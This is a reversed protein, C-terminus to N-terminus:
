AATDGLQYFQVITRTLERELDITEKFRIQQIGGLNFGVDKEMAKKGRDRVILVFNDQGLGRGRNLGMLFGVEHYVNKNGGTLDAILLGSSELMDLIEDTIAYSHGKNLKDIRVPQIGIPPRCAKNIQGVVKEITEYAAQTTRDFQMSVFVTRKKALHVKEFVEILTPADLGRVSALHNGKVWYRFPELRHDKPDTLSFYTFAVLLGPCANAKLSEDTAYLGNVKKICALVRKLEAEKMLIARRDLLFRFLEVLVTHKNALLHDIAELYDSQIKKAMHRALYYEWGFVSPDKLTKDSFLEEDDLILRLNEEPTLPIAKSNINHFITKSHRRGEGGEQFLAICYPTMLSDFKDHKSAASLRHNGDIRFLPPEGADSLLEDPINLSAIRIRQPNRLDASGRFPISRVGVAVKDVNSHFKRGELIEGLPTFGTSQTSRIFDYRLICALIVEPFFLYEKNELFKVIEKEHDKLLNRQYSPDARSISALLGLPAYGRICVFGGLSSELLGRLIM